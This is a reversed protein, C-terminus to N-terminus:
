QPRVSDLMQMGDVLMRNEEAISDAIHRIKLYLRNIEGDSCRTKRGEQREYLARLDYLRSPLLKYNM